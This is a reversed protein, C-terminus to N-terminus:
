FIAGTWFMISKYDEIAEGKSDKAEADFQYLSGELVFRISPEPRFQINANHVTTDKGGGRKEDVGTDFRYALAWGDFSHIRYEAEVYAAWVKKEWAEAGKPHKEAEKRMQQFYEARLMLNVPLDLQLYPNISDEQRDEFLKPAASGDAPAPGDFFVSKKQRYSPSASSTPTTSARASTPAPM